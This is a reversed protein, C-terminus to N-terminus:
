SIKACLEDLMAITLASLGEVILEAGVLEAAPYSSTV